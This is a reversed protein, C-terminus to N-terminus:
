DRKVEGERAIDGATPRRTRMTVRGEARLRGSAVLVGGIGELGYEVVQLFVPDAAGDFGLRTLLGVIILALGQFTRSKVIHKEDAKTRGTM